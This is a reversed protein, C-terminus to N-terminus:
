IKLPKLDRLYKEVQLTAAVSVEYKNAQKLTLSLEFETGKCFVIAEQRYIDCSSYLFTVYGKAKKLTDASM